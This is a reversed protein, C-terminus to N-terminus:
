EDDLALATQFAPRALCRQMYEKLVPSDPLANFVHMFQVSSGNMVDAASFADGLLWPGRRLAAELTAIMTDFDGWGASVRNPEVGSFKEMLAPEVVGPTYLMWYLYEGRQPDDLAPALAAAPYRDAVYLAIAASDAMLVDGDQLAPVKGMPSARLFAPDREADPDRIDVLVRQYDVGAEELMWVIRAARTKPCWFLKM